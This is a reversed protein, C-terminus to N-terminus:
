ERILKKNIRGQESTVSLLYVGVEELELVYKLGTTQEAQLLQGVANYVEITRTESKDFEMIFTSTSPNPYVQLADEIQADLIDTSLVDLEYQSFFRWIEGSASFDMNTVGFALFPNSGPWTHGGANIRYFEVTSGQDGSEYLFHDATCGDTQDIDPVATEIATSNCNNYSVWYDVGAQAGLVGVSGLYPVTPDATGHIQMVPTPHVANCPVLSPDIMAGTVSAIAAIRYSLDCALKYSMFGGNSMGTSYVRNMDINYESAISDILASVFGVDDVTENPSGFANWFTTGTNDLTGEPHIVIFNATDAVPRFDGYIEQEFANSTYGHLNIVLPVEESGDYVSPVYLRYDRQMADHTISGLTTIQGFSSLATVSLLLSLITYRMHNQDNLVM